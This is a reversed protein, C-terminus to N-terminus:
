RLFGVNGAAMAWVVLNIIGLVIGAMGFGSDAGSRRLRQAFIGFVIALLGSVFPVFILLGCILSEVGLGTRDVDDSKVAIGAYDLTATSRDRECPMSNVSEIEM